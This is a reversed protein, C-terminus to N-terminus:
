EGPSAALSDRGWGGGGPWLGDFGFGLGSGVVRFGVWFM